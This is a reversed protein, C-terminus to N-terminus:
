FAARLIRLAQPMDAPEIIGPGDASKGLLQLVAQATAQVMVLDGTAQSKFKSQWTLSKFRINRQGEDHRRLSAPEPSPEGRTWGNPVTRGPNELKVRGLQMVPEKAYLVEALGKDEYRALLDQGVQYLEANDKSCQAQRGALGRMNAKARDIPHAEDSQAQAAM